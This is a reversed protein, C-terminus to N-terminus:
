GFWTRVPRRQADVFDGSILEFLDYLWWLGIGGVTLAQLTGSFKRGVTFRHAGFIGIVVAMALVKSRPYPSIEGSAVPAQRPLAAHGRRWFARTANPQLRYVQIPDAINKVRHAGNYECQVDIKRAIQDYVAATLAVGGPEALAQVRAAINVADGFVDGDRDMVDGINVGARLLMPHAANRERNVAQMQDQVESACKVAAVSSDFALLFGDGATSAIRGHHRRAAEGILERVWELTRLTGIDDEVMLRSYGAVDLSVIAALRREIPEDAVIAGAAATM